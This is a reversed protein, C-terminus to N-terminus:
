TGSGGVIPPLRPPPPPHKWRARTICLRHRGPAHRRCSVPATSPRRWADRARAPDALVRYGGSSPRPAPARIAPRRSSCPVPPRDPLPCSRVFIFIRIPAPGRSAIQPTIRQMLYQIPMENPRGARAHGPRARADDAIPSPWILRPSPDRKAGRPSGPYRQSGPGAM